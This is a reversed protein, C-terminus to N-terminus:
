TAFGISNKTFRAGILGGTAGTVVGNGVTAAGSAIIIKDKDLEIANSSGSLTNAYGLILHESNLEVSAGNTSAASYAITTNDVSTTGSYLTIGKGSGIYIGTDPDLSIANTSSSNGRSTILKIGDGGRMIIEAGGMEIKDPHILVKSLSNSTTNNGASSYSSAVLNIGGCVAQNNIIASGINITTGGINVEKNGVIDVKENAAIYINNGSKINIQNEAEVDIIGENANINLAAGTISALTGDHTIVFGDTAGTGSNDSDSTAVYHNGNNDIWIDGVKFSEPKTNSRYVKVTLEKAIDQVFSALITANNLTLARMKDLTKNSNGLIEGAETFIDTLKEQVVESSDFYSDLYANFISINNALMASVTSDTLSGDPNFAMAAVDYGFSRKQM